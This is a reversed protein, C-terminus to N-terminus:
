SFLRYLRGVFLLWLIPGAIGGTVSSAYDSLAQAAHILSPLLDFFQSLLNFFIHYIHYIDQM